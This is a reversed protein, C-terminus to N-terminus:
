VTPVAPLDTPEASATPTDTATISPLEVGGAMLLREIPSGVFNTARQIKEQIFNKSKTVDQGDVKTTYTGEIAISQWQEMTPSNWLFLQYKDDPLTPAQYLQGTMVDVPKTLKRFDYDNYKKDETVGIPLLYLGGLKEVFHKADGAYNIANFIATSKSKENTSIDLDYYPSLVPFYGQAVDEETRFPVLQGTSDTGMGGVVYFVLKAQPKPPKVGYRKVQQESQKQTGLDAYGGFRVLATGTPLLRKEFNGGASTDTMDTLVNSEVAAQAQALLSM